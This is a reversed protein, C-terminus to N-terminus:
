NWPLDKNTLETMNCGREHNCKKCALTLNNLNDLGGIALPIIHEFTASKYLLPKGCWRCYPYRKLLIEKERRRRKPDKNRPTKSMPEPQVFCMAVAQEPSINSYSGKMGAVYATQKTSDPYYNVLLHGRLHFHGPSKEEIYIDAEKAAKYLRQRYETNM